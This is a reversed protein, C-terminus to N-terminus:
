KGLVDEQTVARARVRSPGPAMDVWEGEASWRGAKTYDESNSGQMWAFRFYENEAAGEEKKRTWTFNPANDYEDAFYTRFREVDNVLVSIGDYEAAPPARWGFTITSLSQGLSIAPAEISPLPSGLQADGQLAFATQLFPDWGWRAIGNIFFGVLLGQYLLSPRTQMSTGPLLLLALIYHHIRLKLDPLVLCIILGIALLGYFRLYRILRAEQRFFWIQSVVIVVLVIIIIALAARAGPQQELDHPTLRQIPIFDFTYNTLSGTWCAGLWLVTKEVQATLGRLARKVGMKEYMVWAAFMAPLFNGIERSILSPVNTYNPPDTALGVTWYLGTFISFFFLAPSTTFLSLVSSFVVSVALLPWRMDRAACKANEFTFSLPFHSDFGVSEIGHRSSSNFNRQTGILKVVGCGGSTDSVVGAHVAAGCIFSDGRYIADENNSPAIPPGGIVLPKYNVEQDGVAHPNLVQYSACSAPCRFAFGSDSFPRCLNGDLGCGNGSAWYTTGCSITTATGWGEIESETLGKRMVLAFTVIWMSLYVFLLWIRHIRKPILRALLLIPFHQIQPFFPDIKFDRPAPPGKAWKFVAKSFRRIPYPVWKLRKWSSEDQIFRPTPPSSDEELEEILADPHDGVDGVGVTTTSSSASAPNDQREVDRVQTRAETSDEGM